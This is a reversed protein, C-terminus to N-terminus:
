NVEKAYVKEVNKLNYPIKKKNKELLDEIENLTAKRMLQIIKRTDNAKMEKEFLKHLEDQMLKSKGNTPSFKILM